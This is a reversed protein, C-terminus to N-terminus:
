ARRGFLHAVGAARRSMIEGALAFELRGRPSLIEQLGALIRLYNGLAASDMSELKRSLDRTPNNTM